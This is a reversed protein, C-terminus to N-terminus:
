LEFYLHRHFHCGPNFALSCKPCVSQCNLYEGIALEYGCGGCLIAKESFKEKPWVMPNGCGSEEHCKYCPYYTNCCYFKISIRDIEAHYHACRTEEDLVQGLVIHKKIQM